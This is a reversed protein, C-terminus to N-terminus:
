KGGKKAQEHDHMATIAIASMSQASLVKSVLWDYTVQAEHKDFTRYFAIDDAYIFYATRVKESGELGMGRVEDVVPVISRAKSIDIAEGRGFNKKIWIM